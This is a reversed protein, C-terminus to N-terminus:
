KLLEGNVYLKYGNLDINSNSEDENTLSSIYSDGMLKIKSNSDLVLKIEKATNEKNIIGEYYSSNMNMALTSIKDIVINGTVNQNTLNVIVNGGNSNSNGWSDSKARLFNGSLDNNVITNNELNITATTNTIYFSDGKNTTISSDKATFISEGDAADGSMSQYLFINKYTTSQGNLENNSDLLEVNEITVKNMGEIVIGESATSILSANKVTVDATSYIAPSGKGTTTYTGRDVNVIGGGRDTRIAASSTGDTTIDLNYANTIGGGTTMIGGSNDKKTIIKSNSINVMTGDSTSNNTTASGGYSFVGNAGYANTTITVNNLNVVAKDKALIASNIGYFSTTDGGDSNGTKNVVINNLTAIASAVLIANEDGKSSEYNGSDITTNENIGTVASYIIISNSSNSGNYLYNNTINIDLYTIAFTIIIVSLVYIIIRDKSYFTDNNTKSNFNSMVLYVVVCSIVLSLVGFVVYYPLTISANSENMQMGNNSPMDDMNKDDSPKEPPEAGDNNGNPKEQADSSGNPKEPPNNDNSMSPNNMNNDKINEFSNENKTNNKAYNM